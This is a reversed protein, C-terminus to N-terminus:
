SPPLREGLMRLRVAAREVDNVLADVRRGFDAIEAPTPLIGSEEQLYESTSRAVTRRAAATWTGFARAASGIEHAVPDGVLRALEEEVDPAAFRLLEQFRAAIETDGSMRVDGARVAAQPDSRLLAGLALPTGALTADPAAGDPLTVRLRGDSVALRLDLPTGELTLALIRGELGAALGQASTSQALGRNLLLEFPRFLMAALM